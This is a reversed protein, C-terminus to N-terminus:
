VAPTKKLTRLRRCMEDVVAPESAYCIRFWGPKDTAFVRGPSINIKLEDFIKHWLCQQVVMLQSFIKCAETHHSQFFLRIGCLLFEALENLLYRFNNFTM